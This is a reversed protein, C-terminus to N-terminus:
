ALRACGIKTKSDKTKKRQKQSRKWTNQMFIVLYLLLLSLVHRKVAWVVRVEDDRAENFDLITLWYWFPLLIEDPFSIFGFEM